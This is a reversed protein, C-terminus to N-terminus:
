SRSKGKFEGAFSVLLTLAEQLEEEPLTISLRVYGEGGSGFVSGPTLSVGAQELLAQCFEYSSTFAEPSRFWVYLSGAPKNVEWGLHRLAQMVRDVRRQYVLNREIVWSQDGSLAAIAADIAPRFSGSNLTNLLKRLSQLAKPNGIAAGIRWGAMNYAKSLTNFEVAESAAGAIQLLSFPHHGDLGVLNYAADHCVLLDNERAFDIAHAFFELSAAAGTPNNPYNLWLLRARCLIEHPISALDPLWGNEPLLPFYYPEALAFRAAQAYVMYSPNPVLVVDGPDVVAQTLLFIGEKSGILPTVQTETDLNVAYYDQYHQAWAQRIARSGALPQYGHHRPQEASQHLADLIHRAPPLDPSGVDLRYLKRGVSKIRGLQNELDSFYHEELQALRHSQLKM